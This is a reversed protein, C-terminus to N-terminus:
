VILGSPPEPDVGAAEGLEDGGGHLALQYREWCVDFDILRELPSALLLINRGAHAPDAVQDATALLLSAAELRGAGYAIDAGLGLWRGLRAAEEPDGAWADTTAASIEMLRQQFAPRQLEIPSEIAGELSQALRDVIPPPPAYIGLDPMGLLAEVATSTVPAVEVQGRAAARAPDAGKSLAELRWELMGSWHPPPPAAMAGLEVVAWDIVRVALDVGCGIIDERRPRTRRLVRRLEGRRLGPIIDVEAPLGGLEARYSLGHAAGLRGVVLNSLGSLGPGFVGGVMGLDEPRSLASAVPRPRWEGSVGASKLRYAARGAAKRVPKAFSRHSLVELHARQRGAELAEIAAMLAGEDRGRLADPDAGDPPSAIFQELVEDM